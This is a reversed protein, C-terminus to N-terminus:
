ITDSSKRREWFHSLWADYWKNWNSKVKEKLNAYAQQLGFVSEELKYTWIDNEYNSAWSFTGEEIPHNNLDNLVAKIRTSGLEIGLFIDENEIQRKIDM